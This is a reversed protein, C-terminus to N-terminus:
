SITASLIFASHSAVSQLYFSTPVTGNGPFGTCPYTRPLALFAMLASNLFTDLYYATEHKRITGVLHFRRLEPM